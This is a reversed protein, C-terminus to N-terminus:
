NSLVLSTKPSGKKQARIKPPINQAGGRILSALTTYLKPESRLRVPAPSESTAGAAYGFDDLLYLRILLSM